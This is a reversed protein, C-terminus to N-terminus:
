GHGWWQTGKILIHTIEVPESQEIIVYHLYIGKYIVCARSVPLWMWPRTQHDVIFLKLQHKLNMKKGKSKVQANRDIWLLHWGKIGKQLGIPSTYAQSLKVLEKTFVSCIDIHSFIALRGIKSSLSSFPQPLSIPLPKWPRESSM